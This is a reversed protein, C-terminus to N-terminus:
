FNIREREIVHPRKSVRTYIAGVYEGIIGLFFLQVSGLFFLGVVLPALGMAFRDWYILKYVLYCMGAVFSVASGMLGALAAMRLPVKSHSTIGLMAVDYLTYFNNKTLGRERLPQAYPVRAVKFGLESILGRMYPSPEDLSRLGDIATRSYLGFGTVNEMLDVEALRRLMRYYLKRMAFFLPREASNTKQGVVVENGERWLRVFEGILEPPDQLDAALVVVADGGAELLGHYPSRVHGFNRNNLIVQVEAHGAALNRLEAQTGDTSCNDIFLVRWKVDQIQAVAKAIREYVPRVNERENFCPVLVTLNFPM